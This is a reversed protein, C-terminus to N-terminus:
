NLKNGPVFDDYTPNDIVYPFYFAHSVDPDESADSAWELARELESFVGIEECGDFYQVAAVVVHNPGCSTHRRYFSLIEESLAEGDKSTWEM